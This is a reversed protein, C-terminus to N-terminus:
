DPMPERQWFARVEDDLGTMEWHGLAIPISDISNLRDFFEKLVFPEGREGGTNGNYRAIRSPYRLEDAAAGHEAHQVADRAAVPGSRAPIGSDPDGQEAAVEGAGVPGQGLGPVM